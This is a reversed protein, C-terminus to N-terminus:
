KSERYRELDTIPNNLIQYARESTLLGLSVLLNMAGVTDARNLDVFSSVSLNDILVRVAVNSQAATTLAILEPFTMRNRLGLKTIKRSQNTGDPDYIKTGDWMWGIRPEPDYGSLDVVLAHVTMLKQVEEETELEVIQSVRTEDIIAFRM